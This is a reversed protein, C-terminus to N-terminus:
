GEFGPLLGLRPDALALAKFLTGMGTRGGATLRAVATDIAAAQAPSASAKLRAARQAIGLRRLFLGQEVPGHAHAGSKEAAASLAAFDVHATLDAEGPEGLLDAYRHGRVAQLTDGLGSEAHGYDVVLAAGGRGVRAAIGCVLGDCRWEFIAGPAADRDLHPPARAAIDPSPSRAHTFALRGKADVGVLRERWGDVTKVAQHVPLADFFENALIISPGEPIEGLERRWAIPADCHALTERQRRELVPSTEVLYIDLAALFAPLARAARLADAIMTGRGPGFEILRVPQPSGMAQWVAAAWLGILEGFMQSIEPATTFDGARGFPDRGMYYGHAPHSLCLAMYRSVPIPGSAAITERLEAELPSV